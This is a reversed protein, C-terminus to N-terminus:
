FPSIWLMLCTDFWLILTCRTVQVPFFGVSFPIYKQRKKTDFTLYVNKWGIFFKMYNFSKCYNIRLISHNYIGAFASRTLDVFVIAFIVTSLRYFSKRRIDMDGSILNLQFLNIMLYFLNLPKKESHWLKHIIAPNAEVRGVLTYQGM